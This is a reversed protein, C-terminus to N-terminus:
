GLRFLLLFGLQVALLIFAVVKNAWHWKKLQGSTDTKNYYVDGTALLFCVAWILPHFFFSGLIFLTNISSRRYWPVQEYNSYSTM